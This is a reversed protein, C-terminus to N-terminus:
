QAFRVAVELVVVVGRTRHVVGINEIAFSPRVIPVDLAISMAASVPRRPPIGVGLSVGTAVYPARERGDEAAGRTEGRVAGAVIRVCPELFAFPREGAVCISTEVVMARYEPAFLRLEPAGDTAPAVAPPESTVAM